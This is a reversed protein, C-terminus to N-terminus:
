DATPPPLAWAGYGQPKAAMPHSKIAKWMLGEIYTESSVVQTDFPPVYYWSGTYWLMVIREAAARLEPEDFIREAIEREREGDPCDREIDSWVRFLTALTEAGINKGVQEFYVDGVGTGELEVRSFGTLECSLAYFAGIGQESM